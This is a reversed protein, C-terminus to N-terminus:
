KSIGEGHGAFGRAAAHFAHQALDVVERAERLVFDIQHLEGEVFTEAQVAEAGHKFGLARQFVIVAIVRTVIMLRM